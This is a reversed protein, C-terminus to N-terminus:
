ERVVQGGLYNRVRDNTSQTEKLFTVVREDGETRDTEVRVTLGLSRLHELTADLVAPDGRVTHREGVTTGAAVRLLTDRMSGVIAEGVAAARDRAAAETEGFEVSQFAERIVRRFVFDRGYDFPLSFAGALEARNAHGTTYKLLPGGEVGRLVVGERGRDDLDEIAARAAAAADAPDHVGFFPVRPVGHDALTERRERVPMPAGATRDRVDFARFAVSGVGEYDHTTYPNEPGVVEGCLMASPHADFFEGLPLTERVHATTFPCRYGARTFAVVGSRDTRVVRVNYGNLKEEVAVPGDFHREVGPDLVLTRPVKPFGRVATGDFLVTGKELGAGYDPLHRYTRGAVSVRQFADVVDEDVGLAAAYDADRM